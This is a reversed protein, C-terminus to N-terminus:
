CCGKNYTRVMDSDDTIRKLKWMDLVDIDNLLDMNSINLYGLRTNGKPVFLIGDGYSTSLNYIGCPVDRDMKIGITRVGYNNFMFVNPLKSGKAYNILIDSTPCAHISNYIISNFCLIVIILIILLHALM